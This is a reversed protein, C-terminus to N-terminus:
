WRGRVIDLIFIGKDFQGLVCAVSYDSEQKTKFATDCSMIVRNFAPLTEDVRWFQLAGTKLVEGAASFPRQQHQGAYGSEGLRARESNLISEPFRAPFALEGDDTRPDQWGLSTVTRRSTEFEQPICLVEWEDGAMALIHGALDDPHLRQMIPCRTGTTLDNLRNAFAQDYWANVTSRATESYSDVADLPDDIFLADARDGTVRANSSLAMRLGSETNQFRTKLNQDDALAWNIGFTRRYWHSDIVARCKLSDRTAVTPNGSAFIARWSPRTIWRWAPSSVSVISSKAFGPPVLIALNRKGLKGELLAQLHDAIADLHWNWVLPTSPEVIPWAGKLFSALSMGRAAEQGATLPQPSTELVQRAERMLTALDKPFYSM